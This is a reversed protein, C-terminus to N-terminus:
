RPNKTQPSTRSGSFVNQAVLRRFFKKPGRPLGPAHEGPFNQFYLTRSQSFDCKQVNTVKLSEKFDDDFFIKIQFLKLNKEPFSKKLPSASVNPPLKGGGGAGGGLLCFGALHAPPATAPLSEDIM